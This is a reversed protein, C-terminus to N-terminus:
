SGAREVEVADSSEAEDASRLVGVGSDRAGQAGVAVM